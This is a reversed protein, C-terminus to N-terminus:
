KMLLMYYPVPLALGLDLFLFALLHHSSTLAQNLSRDRLSAVVHSLCSPIVALVQSPIVALVPRSLWSPVPATTWDIKGFMKMYAATAAISNVLFFALVLWISLPFIPRGQSITTIVKGFISIRPFVTTCHPLQPGLTMILGTVITLRTSRTISVM